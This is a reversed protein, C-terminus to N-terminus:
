PELPHGHERFEAVFMRVVRPDFQTGANAELEALAEESSRQRRQPTPRTMADFADAVSVIRAGSPIEEGSLGRPYGAGDWREHHSHVIPLVDEWAAIPRLMELGLAAHKMLELREAESPHAVTLVAPDLRVKGIDHLLAGFHISRRAAESLGLRRSMMDALAAVRRSHGPYHIDLRELVQVLIESTHTFFNITREHQRSNEIALAAQRALSALLAEQQADFGGRRGAVVLAGLVDARRLPACLWGPLASALEDCRPSYRPDRRPDDFRLTTEHLAAEAALGEGAWLRGGHLAEVGPGAGNEIVLADSGSRQFVLVRGTDAGTLERAAAVLLPLLRDLHSEGALRASAEHLAAMLRNGEELRAVLSRNETALRSREVAERVMHELASLRLSGKQLYGFIGHRLGEVASEFTAHGTLVVIQADPNLERIRDAVEFGSMDPLVLDVVAAAFDGSRALALAAGSSSASLAQYGKSLLLETVVLAFAADDDVVLVRPQTEAM